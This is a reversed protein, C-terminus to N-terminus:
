IKSLIIPEMPKWFPPVAIIESGSFEEGYGDETSYYYLQTRGLFLKLDITYSNQSNLKGIETKQNEENIKFVTINLNQNSRITVRRFTTKYIGIIVILSLTTFLISKKNDFILEKITTNGRTTNTIPANKTQFDLATIDNDVIDSEKEITEDFLANITTENVKNNQYHSKINESFYEHNIFKDFTKPVTKTDCENSYEVYFRTLINLTVRDPKTLKKTNENKLKDRLRFARSITRESRSVNNISPYLYIEKHLDAETKESNQEQREWEEKIWDILAIFAPIETKELTKAM